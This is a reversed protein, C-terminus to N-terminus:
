FWRCMMYVCVHIGATALTELTESVGDQLRDEIGTVGQLELHQEIDDAISHTSM